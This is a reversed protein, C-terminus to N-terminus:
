VHSCGGVHRPDSPVSCCEFECLSLPNPPLFPTEPLPPPPTTRYKYVLGNMLHMDRYGNLETYDSHEHTRTGTHTHTHTHQGTYVLGSMLHMDRYGKLKTYDSHKHTHSGTQTHTHTHASLVTEKSLIKHKVFVNIM